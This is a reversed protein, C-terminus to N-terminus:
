NLQHVTSDTGLSYQTSSLIILSHPATLPILIPLPFTLGGLFGVGTATHASCIGRSRVLVGLYSAETMPHGMIKQESFESVTLFSENVFKYTTLLPRTVWVYICIPEDTLIM